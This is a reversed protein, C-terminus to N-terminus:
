PLRINGVRLVTSTITSGAPPEVGNAYRYSAANEASTPAAPDITPWNLNGLWPPKDSLYYSSPPFQELLALFGEPSPDIVIDLDNTSRPIGHSSSAFSGVVMYPVRLSELIAGVKALLKEPM